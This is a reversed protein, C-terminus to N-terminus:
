LLFFVYLKIPDQSPPEIQSVKGPLTQTYDEDCKM